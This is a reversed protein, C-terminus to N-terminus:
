AYLAEGFCVCQLYVDSTTGDERDQIFNAFHQIYLKALTHLGAVLTERNVIKVEEDAGLQLDRVHVAGGKRVPYDLHRFGRSEGPWPVNGAEPPVYEDIFYWYNSGGEFAGCLLDRIRHWTIDHGAITCAVETKEKPNGPGETNAPVGHIKEHIQTPDM